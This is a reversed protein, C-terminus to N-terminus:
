ILLQENARFRWYSSCKRKKKQLDLWDVGSQDGMSPLISSSRSPSIKRLPIKNFSASYSRYSWARLTSEVSSSFILEFAFEFTPLLFWSWEDRVRYYGIRCGRANRKLRAISDRRTVALDLIKSDRKSFPFSYKSSRDKYKTQIIMRNSRSISTVGTLTSTLKSKLTSVKLKPTSYNGIKKRTHNWRKITVKQSM